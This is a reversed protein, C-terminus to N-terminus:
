IATNYNSIHNIAHGQTQYYNFSIKIKPHSEGKIIFGLFKLSQCPTLVSKETNIVFGLSTLLQKTEDINKKCENYTSGQLYSDDIYAVFIHGKARLNAFVPIMLKTFLRPASSLGFALCQYEMVHGEWIFRVFKRYEEHIPVTYYADRLDISGM